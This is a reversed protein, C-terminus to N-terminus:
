IWCYLLQKIFMSNKKMNSTFDRRVNNSSNLLISPKLRSIWERKTHQLNKMIGCPFRYSFDM